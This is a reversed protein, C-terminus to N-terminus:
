PCLDVLQHLEKDLVQNGQFSLLLVIELQGFSM